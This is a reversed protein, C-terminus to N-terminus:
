LGGRAVAGGTAGAELFAPDVGASGVLRSGLHVLLPGVRRTTWSGAGGEGGVSAPLVVVAMGGRGTGWTYAAAGHMSGGKGVPLALGGRTRARKFRGCGLEVVVVHSPGSGPCAWSGRGVERKRMAARSFALSDRRSWVHTLLAARPGGVRDV